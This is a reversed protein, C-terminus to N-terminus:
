QNLTRNEFVKFWRIKNKASPNGGMKLKSGRCEIM